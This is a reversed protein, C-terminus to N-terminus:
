SLIEELAMIKKIDNLFFIKDFFNNKRKLVVPLVGTTKSLFFLKKSLMKKRKSEKKFQYRLQNLDLNPRFEPDTDLYLTNQNIVRNSGIHAPTLVPEQGAVADQSVPDGRPIDLLQPLLLELQEAQDVQPHEALYGAGVDHLNNVRHGM